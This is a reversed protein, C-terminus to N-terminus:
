GNEAGEEIVVCPVPVCNGSRAPAASLWRERDLGTAARDERMQALRQPAAEDTVGNRYELLASSLEELAGLDNCFKDQEKETLILRSRRALLELEEISLKM